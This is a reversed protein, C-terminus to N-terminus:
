RSAAEDLAAAWEAAAILVRGLAGADDPSLIAPIGEEVTVRGILGTVTVVAGEIHLPVVLACAIRGSRTPTVRRM